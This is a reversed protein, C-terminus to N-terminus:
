SVIGLMVVHIIQVSYSLQEFSTWLVIDAHTPTGRLCLKHLGASGHSQLLLAGKALLLRQQRMVFLDSFTKLAYFLNEIISSM